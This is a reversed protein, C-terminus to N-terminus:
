RHWQLVFASRAPLTLDLRGDRLPLKKEKKPIRLGRSDSALLVRVSTEEGDATEVGAYRLDESYEVRRHLRNILVIVSEEEAIRAYALIGKADALRLLSGKQLAKSARRIRITERHLRMVQADEHGWPYPRRDDPDTFGCMGAEDGYYVTPAGTWTMQVIVAQRLVTLDTREAAAGPGLQEVRGPRGATRTLFRAHDHNSLQNMSIMLPQATLPGCGRRLVADWFRDADGIREPLYEDNHKEMGTLFWGLPEMFAEYNMVTDWEGGRLWRESGEYNEAIIVAQPNAERVTERFRQWFYHNYAASHGLDAAVDLRWGDTRFPPSVWRSAAALMDRELAASGEYFLKPLSGFGWWAEYSDNHPWAEPETRTFLFRERYPSDASQYAGATGAAGGYIDERDMWRHFAGCHNFVADLIVRIGRRHAERVLRALLRDSARLNEESQVRRLYREAKRNDTCDEPLLAGGDEKLVGFHPDVHLYDQTDYKHDSPSLFIPNLYLAQIGLDALYDLSDIVGQLDGGYFNMTENGPLPSDWREAALTRRRDCVYEGTLVDNSPDGNRFRDVFIQYMVAGVAWEPVRFGPTIMWLDMTEQEAAEAEEAPLIETRTYWLRRSGLIIEFAYCVPTDELPLKVKYYDFFAGARRRMRTMPLRDCRDDRWVLLAAGDINSRAARLRIEATTHPAPQWPRVYQPTGDSFLAKTDLRGFPRSEIDNQLTNKL